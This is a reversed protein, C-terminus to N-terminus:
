EQVRCSASELRDQLKRVYEPGPPASPTDPPKGVMMEAPTRIERGLMLLAPSCSTSDQAASRYAMLVLPIHTDWDRQHKATVIALQQALTCNFREVLGDSQPHLPTTRTKHSGLKECMTKFVRSEFNRDQDTHIVEPVGFRSFMGAVLADVVTEAEQDPLSYAEPWKTFYDMTTLVYRNGRETLPFPGLIDIGVREMPCGVPFQQLQAHSGDPSGKRATCSDCRRCHDEVDRQQQGWYFGQRLRRLTKSISFHVARLVTERLARPVVVQWRIEGTAPETWGRQLVGEHLRLADFMSWRPPAHFCGLRRGGPSANLLWGLSHQDSIWTWRRIGKRCGQM